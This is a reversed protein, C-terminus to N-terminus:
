FKNNINKLNQDAKIRAQESLYSFNNIIDTYKDLESLLRCNNM